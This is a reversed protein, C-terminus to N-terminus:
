KLQRTGPACSIDTASNRPSNAAIAGPQEAECIITGVAIERKEQYIVATMGAYSRLNGSRSTAAQVRAGGGEGAPNITYIYNATQTQAMGLRAVDDSFEAKEMYYAQQARNLTGVYVRAEAQKASSVRSLFAPLAIAALIGTIVIVVLLELLTFGSNEKLGVLRILWNAQRGLVIGDGLLTSFRSCSSSITRSVWKKRAKQRGVPFRSLRVM